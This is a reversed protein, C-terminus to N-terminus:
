GWRERDELRGGAGGHRGPPPRLALGRLLRGAPRLGQGQVVASLFM